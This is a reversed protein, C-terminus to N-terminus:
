LGGEEELLAEFQGSFNANLVDDFEKLWRRIYDVDLGHRKKSLVGRVDEIDRARGAIIKHIILDEASAFRVPYGAVGIPLARQMAQREFDSSSFVFDVRVGLEPSQVPLVWTKGTFEEPDNVLVELGVEGAIKLLKQLDEPTLTLTIDIDRTLRPEGHVLVAQGGIVLYDIKERDLAEAIRKLLDEYLM